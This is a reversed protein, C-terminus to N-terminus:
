AFERETKLKDFKEIDYSDALVRGLLKQSNLQGELSRAPATLRNDGTPEMLIHKLVGARQMEQFLWDNRVIFDLVDKYAEYLAHNENTLRTHLYIDLLSRESEKEAILLVAMTATWANMAFKNLKEASFQGKLYNKDDKQNWDLLSEKPNAKDLLYDILHFYLDNEELYLWTLVRALFFRLISSLDSATTLLLRRFHDPYKERLRPLFSAVSLRVFDDPDYALAVLMHWLSSIESPEPQKDPVGALPDTADNLAGFEAIGTEGLLALNYISQALTARISGRRIVTQRNASDSREYYSNYWRFLLELSPRQEYWHKAEPNLGIQHLHLITDVFAQRLRQDIEPDSPKGEAWALLLHDTTNPEVLAIWAISDILSDRLDMQRVFSPYLPALESGYIALERLREVVSGYRDADPRRVQTIIDALIPLAQVVSRRYKELAYKILNKEDASSDFAIQDGVKIFEDLGSAAITLYDTMPLQLERERWAEKILKEYIAWFTEQPQGRVLAIALVLYREPTTLRDFWGQLRTDAEAIIQDIFKKIDDKAAWQPLQKAFRQILGPSRLKSAVAKITLGNIITDDNLDGKPLVSSEVLQHKLDPRKGYQLEHRLWAALNAETYVQYSDEGDSNLSCFIDEKEVHKWDHRRVQTTLIIYMGNQKREATERIQQIAFLPYSQPSVDSVILTKIAIDAHQLDSRLTEGNIDTRAPQYIPFGGEGEPSSIAVALHQAVYQLRWYAPAELIIIHQKRLKEVLPTLKGPALEESQTDQYDDLLLRDFIPTEPTDTNFNVTGGSGVRFEGFVNGGRVDGGIYAGGQGPASQERGPTADNEDPMMNLNESM